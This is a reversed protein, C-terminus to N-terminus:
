LAKSRSVELEKCLGRYGRELMRCLMWMSM